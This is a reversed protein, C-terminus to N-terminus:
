DAVTTLEGTRQDYNWRGEPIRQLYGEQVLSQLSPPYEGKSVQYTRIASQLIVQNAQSATAQAKDQSQKLSETYRVPASTKIDEETVSKKLFYHFGALALLALLIWKM